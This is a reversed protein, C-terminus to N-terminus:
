LCLMFLFFDNLGPADRVLVDATKITGTNLPLYMQDDQSQFM